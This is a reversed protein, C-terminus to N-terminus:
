SEEHSILFEKRGYLFLWHADTIDYRGKTIKYKDAIKQQLQKDPIADFMMKKDAKGNGTAFKKLSTPAIIKINEPLIGYQLLSAVITYQLGALDRSSNGISNGFALGEIYVYVNEMDVLFGHHEKFSNIQTICNRAVDIARTFQDLPNNEDKATSIIKYSVMGTEINGTFIGTSTYSFDIGSIICEPIKQKNSM